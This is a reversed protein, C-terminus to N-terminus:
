PTTLYSTLRLALLPRRGWAVLKGAAIARWQSRRGYAVLLFAVPDASITVDARAPAATAAALEGDSFALAIHGDGRLRIDYTATLDKTTSRDVLLPLVPALNRIILTADHRTLPWPAKAAAALDYGHLLIEGLGVALSARLPEDRDHWQVLEDLDRESALDLFRGMATAARASLVRPDREPEERLRAANTARLSGGAMDSLDGAPPAGGDIYSLYTEAGWAVHALLEGVTWESGPVPTAADTIGNAVASFRDVAARVASILEQREDESSAM